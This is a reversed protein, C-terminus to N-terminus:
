LRVEALSALIENHKPEGLLQPKERQPLAAPPQAQTQARVARGPQARSPEAPAKRARVKEFVISDPLRVMANVNLQIKEKKLVYARQSTQVLTYWQAPVLWYGKPIEQGDLVQDNETQYAPGQGCHATHPCRACHCPLTCHAAHPFHATGTPLPCRVLIKALWYPGEIHWELRSAHVAHVQKPLWLLLFNVRQIFRKPKFSACVQNVDLSGAFEELAMSRSESVHQNQALKCYVTKFAGFEGRMLCNRFDYNVCPQCGCWIGRVQLPGDREATEKDRCLGIHQHNEMSGAYGEAEPVSKKTFLATDYYAWIYGEATWWGHKNAKAVSPSSCRKALFHVLERTGPNLLEGAQLGAKVGRAAM